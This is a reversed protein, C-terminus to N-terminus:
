LKVTERRGYECIAQFARVADVAAALCAYTEPFRVPARKDAALLGPLLPQPGGGKGHGHSEACKLMTKRLAAVAQMPQQSHIHCGHWFPRVLQCCQPLQRAVRAAQASSCGQRARKGPGAPAVDSCYLLSQFTWAVDLAQQLVCCGTQSGKQSFGGPTGPIFAANCVPLSATATVAAAHASAMLQMVALGGCSMKRLM